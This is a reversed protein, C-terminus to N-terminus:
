VDIANDQWRVELAANLLDARTYVLRGDEFTGVLNDITGVVQERLEVRGYQDHRYYDQLLGRLTTTKQLMAMLYRYGKTDKNM